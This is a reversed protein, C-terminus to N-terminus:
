GAIAAIEVISKGEVGLHKNMGSTFFIEVLEPDFESIM